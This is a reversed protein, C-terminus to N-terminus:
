KLAKGKLKMLRLKADKLEPLDSDADKWLILLRNYQEVAKERLGQKEYLKALVYHYKPLIFRRDKSSPDFTILKEYEAIAKDLAGKKIYARAAVDRGSPANYSFMAEENFNPLEPPGAKEIVRVAEDVSDEAILLEAYLVERQNRLIKTIYRPSIQLLLSDL